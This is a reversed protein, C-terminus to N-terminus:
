LLLLFDKSNLGFVNRFLYRLWNLHLLWDFLYLLRLLHLLLFGLGNLDILRLFNGALWFLRRM